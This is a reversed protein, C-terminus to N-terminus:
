PRTGGAAAGLAEMVRGALAKDKALRGRLTASMEVHIFASHSARSLAAQANKTGGLDRIDDPYLLVGTPSLVSRLANAVARANGRTDSASVVVEAGRAREDRFGHLQVAVLEPDVATLVSHASSFFSVKVHAVDSPSAGSKAHEVREEASEKASRPMTNILMARAELRDLALLALELTGRDFFTHPAEVLFPRARGLRLVLLGAGRKDEDREAVLWYRGGDATRGVFGRPPAKTPLEGTIVATAVATVWTSYELLEADAPERYPRGGSQRAQDVAVKLPTGPEVPRVPVPVGSSPVPVSSSPVPAASPISGTTEEQCSRCGSLLLGLAVPGLARSRM